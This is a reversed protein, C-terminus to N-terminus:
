NVPQGSNESIFRTENKDQSLTIWNELRKEDAGESRDEGKLWFDFWQISRQYITLRHAPQWKNHFEDPFIFLDVPKGAQRLATYAELAGLYETDAAQILLPVRITQANQVISIEHWFEPAQTLLNPYGVQTFTRDIQPGLLAGQTREWCCGSMIAAAFMSSHVMAYQVTTSGDSLGTIGIKKPDILGDDILQQLPTEISSLISKRNAWNRLNAREAAVLDGAGALLGIHPPRNVSLVAYGKAALAFIPYEDGVGGRLLGRSVYQVVVAPYRQGARYRVPYVLDATSELGVNNRVNIRRVRGLTLSAWEPNPDFITKMSGTLLDIKVLRRPETAAERLCLLTEAIPHCDVLYDITSFIRKPSKSGPFWQYIGTTGRAWGERRLFVIRRGRDILWAPARAQSCLVSACSIIAGNSSQYKVTTEPTAFSGGVAAVWAEHHERDTPTYDASKPLMYQPQPLLTRESSTAPRSFGTRLDLTEIEEKLTGPLQPEAGVTPIFRDDYHFGALGERQAAGKLETAQPRTVFVLSHGDPTLAFRVVDWHSKTLPESGTGDSWAKWVQVRGSQKKLFAVWRGDASWAPTIIEPIGSGVTLDAVGVLEVRILDGGRDAVIPRGGSLPVIMIAQCYSNSQADAQRLQLAVSMRDPSISFLPATAEYPGIDRLALLDEPRVDRRASTTAADMTPVLHACLAAARAAGPSQVMALLGATWALVFRKSAM